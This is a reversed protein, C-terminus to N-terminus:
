KGESLFPYAHAKIDQKTFPHTLQLEKAHLQLRPRSNPVPHYLPDGLIPKGISTLHVRIQHTRGTELWCSVWSTKEEKTQLSIHTIATQGNKEDIVRKRRDHRDRGIKKNICLNEKPLSGEIQAEYIRHIEKKELMRGLIPLIIPNKAFIIAGSTEKDLRHVVYPVQNKPKLYAALDNLLTDTENPQNPHTKQGHKKNIIIIHEDEWIPQINQANGLLITPLPYDSEEFTLTISDGPHVEQHFMGVINNIEVNKRVRLFHRVKRPILWESELLDTLPMPKLEKPLVFTFKM